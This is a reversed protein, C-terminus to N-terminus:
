RDGGPKTSQWAKAQRYARELDPESRGLMLAIARLPHGKALHDDVFALEGADLTKDHRTRDSFGGFKTRPPRDMNHNDAM